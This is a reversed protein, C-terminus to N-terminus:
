RLRFVNLSTLGDSGRREMELAFQRRLIALSIKVLELFAGRCGLLLIFQLKVGRLRFARGMGVTASSKSKRSLIVRLRSSISIAYRKSGNKRRKVIM